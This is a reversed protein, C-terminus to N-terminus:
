SRWDGPSAGTSAPRSTSRSTSATREGSTTSSGPLDHQDALLESETAERGLYPHQGIRVLEAALEPLSLVIDVVGTRIAAEPMGSFRATGPTQVLTIGGEARIAKLGESGDEGTGSLVVGIAKDGRDAAVAEFFLDIPLHLRKPEQTRPQLRFAGDQFSVDANSPIVYVHDAEAIMLDTIEHVRLAIARRLVETLQSAHSPDLHQIVVYALGIDAQVSRLLETIAELGGASAGIAV